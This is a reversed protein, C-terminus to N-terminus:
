RPTENKQHHISTTTGEKDKRKDKLITVVWHFVETAVAAAKIILEITRDKM